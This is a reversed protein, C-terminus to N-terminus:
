RLPQSPSPGDETSCSASRCYPIAPARRESYLFATLLTAGGLLPVLVRAGPLDLARGRDPTTRPLLWPPLALAGAAVALPAVFTWRWSLLSLIVGALLNGATAGLVSLGGWTVM